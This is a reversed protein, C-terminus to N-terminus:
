TELYRQQQEPSLKSLERELAMGSLTSLHAFEGGDDSDAAAPVNRVTPPLGSLNPAKGANTKGKTVDPAPAAATKGLGNRAKVMAHAEDLFWQEPKDANAPDNALFKVARDLQEHLGKNEPARYDIGEDKKATDLLANVKGLYSRQANELTLKTAVNATTIETQIADIQGLIADEKASYEEPTIEGDMLKKFEVAKEARLAKIQDAADEPATATFVVAPQDDKPAETPAPSAAPEDKKAEPDAAGEEKKAAEDADEEGKDAGKGAEEDDEDDDTPGEKAAIARLTAEDEDVEELAAREQDSLGELDDKDMSDNEL